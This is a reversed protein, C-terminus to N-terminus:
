PKEKITVTVTSNAELTAGSVSGPVVTFVKDETIDADLIPVSASKAGMEGDAWNLTIATATFNTGGTATGNTPTLEVSAAGNSGTVRLFTIVAFGDLEETVTATTGSGGLRLEGNTASALAPYPTTAGPVSALAIGGGDTPVSGTTVTEADSKLTVNRDEKVEQFDPVSKEDPFATVTRLEIQRHVPECLICGSEIKDPRSFLGFITQLGMQQFQGRTNEVTTGDADKIAHPKVWFPKFAVPSGWNHDKIEEEGSTKVQGSTRYPVFKVAEEFYWHAIEYKLLKSGNHDIFRGDDLAYNARPVIGYTNGAQSVYEFPRIFGITGDAKTVAGVYDATSRVVYTIGDYLFMEEGVRFPHVVKERSDRSINKITQDNEIAREIQHRSLEVYFKKGHNAPDRSAREQIRKGFEHEYYGQPLYPFTGDPLGEQSAFKVENAISTNGNMKQLILDNLNYDLMNTALTSGNQEITRYTAQAESTAAATEDTCIVPFLVTKKYFSPTYSDKGVAFSGGHADKCLRNSADSGLTPISIPNGHADVGTQDEATLAQDRNDIEEVQGPDIMTLSFVELSSQTGNQEGMDESKLRAINGSTKKHFRNVSDAKIFRELAAKKPSFGPSYTKAM